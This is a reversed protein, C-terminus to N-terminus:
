DLPIGPDVSTGNHHSDTVCFTSIAISQNVFEQMVDGAAQVCQARNEFVFEEKQIFEGDLSFFMVILWIKMM